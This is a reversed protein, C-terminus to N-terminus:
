LSAQPIAQLGGLHQHLHAPPIRSLVDLMIMDMELHIARKDLLEASTIRPKAGTLAL